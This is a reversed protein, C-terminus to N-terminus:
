LSTIAAQSVLDKLGGEERILSQVLRMDWVQGSLYLSIFLAITEKGQLRSQATM